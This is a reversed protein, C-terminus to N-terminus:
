QDLKANSLAREIDRNVQPVDCQHEEGKCHHVEILRSTVNCVIYHRNIHKHKCAVSSFAVNQSNSTTADTASPDSITILSVPRLLASGTKHLRPHSSARAARTISASNNVNESFVANLLDNFSSSRQANDESNRENETSKQRGSMLNPQDTRSIPNKEGKEAQQHISKADRWEIVPSASNKGPESRSREIKQKSVNPEVNVVPHTSQVAQPMNESTVWAQKVPSSQNLKDKDTQPNDTLGGEPHSFTTRSKHTSETKESINPLDSTPLQDSRVLRLQVEGASNHRAPSKNAPQDSVSRHPTTNRAPSITVNIAVDSVQKDRSPSEVTIVVKTTDKLEGMQPKMDETDVMVPDGSHRSYRNMMKSNNKSPKNTDLCFERHVTKPKGDPLLRHKTKKSRSRSVPLNGSFHFDFNMQSKFMVFALLPPGVANCLAYFLM